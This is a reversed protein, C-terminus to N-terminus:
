QVQLPSTTTGAMGQAGPSGTGAPVPNLDGNDGGSNGSGSGGPQGATGSSCSPSGAPVIGSYVICVSIGGTGGAGGSGGAGNGGKGGALASADSGPSGGAQGVQGDGGPQADGGKGTSLSCPGDLTVTSAVSALAISAGGGAGGLGGAGGCGGSGGGNGGTPPPVSAAGGGGGQGPNGPSGNGGHSPTWGMADLTGYSTAAQGGNGAAGNAGPHGKSISSGTGDYGSASGLTATPTSTGDGGSGVGGDINVTGGSGGASSGSMCAAAGTTAGGAGGTASTDPAGNPATSGNGYNSPTTPKSPSASVGDGAALACNHFAVNASANVLVAISSAGNGASDQGSANPARFNMDEITTGSTLMNITLAPGPDTPAVTVTNTTAYSWDACSYGGYLSVGDHAADIVLHEPYTGACANVRHDAATKALDLAHAITKVPSAETGQNSDSGSPSVFVGSLAVSGDAADSGGDDGPPCNTGKDVCDVGTSMQGCAGVAVLLSGAAIHWARM